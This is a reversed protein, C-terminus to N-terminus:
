EDFADESSETGGQRDRATSPFPMYEWGAPLHYEWGPQWAMGAEVLAGLDKGLLLHEIAWHNASHAIVLVRGPDQEIALEELFAATRHVVDMYSEGGPWPEVLHHAREADLRSRRMGNLQGYDCERLRADSIIPISSGAFAIVATEVARRLDSVFVIETGDTQRRTGLEKAARRGARSLEGPRWGTAIGRENDTTIAHTEYILGISM